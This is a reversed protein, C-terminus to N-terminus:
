PVAVCAMVEGMPSAWGRRGVAGCLSFGGGGGSGDVSHVFLGQSLSSVAERLSDM